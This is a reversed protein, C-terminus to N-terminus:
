TQTKSRSSHIEHWVVKLVALLPIALILGLIGGVEGGILLAAVIAMPHLNLTHGMIQPSILNGELQQVIVNVILVKIVMSLGMPFALLIAPTAGIFPGLYPIIDAAALFMALLIAYPMHIVLLGAYTLVGVASMVLLQGRVYKGLTDDIGALVTKMEDRYRVPAVRVMARGIVRMDKLMYYVLFPVVFALFLFSVTGSLMTFAGSALGTIHQEANALATEIGKRVAEPLYQKQQALKDIWGDAWQVLGPINNALQTMQKSVLPICNIVIITALVIFTLYIILVAMGRPVRRRVLLNVVPELVYTLVMAALFPLFLTKVVLWIDHLFGRLLGLLYICLLTVLVSLAIRLYNGTSKTTREMTGGRETMEGEDHGRTALGALGVLTFQTCPTYAVYRLFFQRAQRGM